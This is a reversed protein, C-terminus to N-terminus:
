GCSGPPRVRGSGSTEGRMRAARALTATPGARCVLEAGAVEDVAGKAQAWTMVTMALVAGALSASSRMTTSRCM